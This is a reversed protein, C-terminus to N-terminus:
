APDAQGMGSFWCYAFSDEVFEFAVTKRYAELADNYALSKGIFRRTIVPASMPQEPQGMELVSEGNVTTM